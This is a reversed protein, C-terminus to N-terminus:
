KVYKKKKLFRILSTMIIGAILYIGVVLVLKSTRIETHSILPYLIEACFYIFVGQAIGEALLPIKKENQLENM